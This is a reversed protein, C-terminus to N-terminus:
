MCCWKKDKPKPQNKLHDPIYNTDEDICSWIEWHSGWQDYPYTVHGNGNWKPGWSNRIIFGNEDWGVIAVGHGGDAAKNITPKVWFQASGNNYYPFAILLPGYEVLAEKVGQITSVQAYSKIRYNLAEEEAEKPIAKPEENGSYPFLRETCMGKEKLIKMANRPYMGSTPERYIYVSNPSMLEEGFEENDHTEQCEKVASLAFAVCTGRGGQNKVPRLYECMFKEPLVIGKVASVVRAEYVWDRPDFPSPIVNCISSRDITTM